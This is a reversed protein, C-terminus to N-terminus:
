CFDLPTDSKQYPIVSGFRMTAPYTRSIKPLHAKKCGGGEGAEGRHAGEILGMRFLTLVLETIYSILTAGTIRGKLHM